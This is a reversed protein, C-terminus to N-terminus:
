RAPYRKFCTEREDNKRKDATNWVDAPARVTGDKLKTGNLEVHRWYAANAADFCAELLQQRSAAEDQIRKADDAQRKREDSYKQQELALRAENYSPLAVGFYYGVALAPIAAIWLLPKLRQAEAMAMRSAPTAPEHALPDEPPAIM